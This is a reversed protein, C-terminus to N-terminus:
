KRGEVSKQRCNVCRGFLQLLHEEIVFDTRRSLEALLDDIACGEFTVVTGCNTCILHHMHGPWSAVYGVESGHTHIRAVWGGRTLRELTRYVTARGPPPLQDHQLDAYLQEASFPTAYDIIHQLVRMRPETIRNGSLNWASRVGAIWAEPKIQITATEAM